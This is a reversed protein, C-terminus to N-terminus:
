LLLSLVGNAGIWASYDARRPAHCNGSDSVSNQVLERLKENLEFFKSEEIDEDSTKVRLM